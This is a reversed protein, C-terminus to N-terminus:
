PTGFLIAELKRPRRSIVAFLNGAPNTVRHPNKKKALAFYFPGTLVWGLCSCSCWFVPLAGCPCPWLVCWCALWSRGLHCSLWCVCGGLSVCFAVPVLPHYVVHLLCRIPLCVGGCAVLGPFLCWGWCPLCRCFWVCWCWFRVAVSVLVFFVVHSVGGFWFSFRASVPVPRAVAMIEGAAWVGWLCPRLRPAAKPAGAIRKDQGQRHPPHTAIGPRAPRRRREGQCPHRRFEKGYRLIKGNGGGKPSSRPVDQGM